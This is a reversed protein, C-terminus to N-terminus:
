GGAPQVAPVDARQFVAQHVPSASDIQGVDFVSQGARQHDVIRPFRCRLPGSVGFAEATPVDLRDPQVRTRCIQRPGTRDARRREVGFICSMRASRERSRSRTTRRAACRLPGSASREHRVDDRQQGPIRDRVVRHERQPLDGLLADALEISASISGFWSKATRRRRARTNETHTECRAASPRISPRSSRRNSTRKWHPRESAAMRSFFGRTRMSPSRSRRPPEHALHRDAPGHPLALPQQVLEVDGVLADNTSSNTSSPGALAQRVDERQQRQHQRRLRQLDRKTAQVGVIWCRCPM